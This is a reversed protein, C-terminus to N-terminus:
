VQRTLRGNTEYTRQAQVLTIDTHHTLNNKNVYSEFDYTNSLYGQQEM